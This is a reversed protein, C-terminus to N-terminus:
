ADQNLVRVPDVRSARRAPAWISVIAVTALVAVVAAFTPPDTAGVGHLLRGLIRSSALALVVGAAAGALALRAGEVLVQRLVQSPQAGLALRIGIERSRLAVTYSLV